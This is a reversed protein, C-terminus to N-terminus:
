IYTGGGEKERKIKERLKKKEQLRSEKERKRLRM